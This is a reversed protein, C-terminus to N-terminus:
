GGPRTLDKAMLATPRNLWRETGLRRWGRAAYFCEKDPTHLYLRAHGLSAAAAEVHAVLRSGIGRGREVPVVLVSALWPALDLRTALDDTDLTATGLPRGAEEAVFSVPAAPGAAARLFGETAALPWGEAAWWQAHLWAAVEAVHPTQAVPRISVM